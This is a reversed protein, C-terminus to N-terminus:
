LSFAKNGLFRSYTYVDAFGLKESIERASFSKSILFRSKQLLHYQIIKSPCSDFAFTCFRNMTREHITLVQALNGVTCYQHSLQMGKLEKLFNEAYDLYHMTITKYSGLEALIEEPFCCSAFYWFPNERKNIVPVSEMLKGILRSDNMRNSPISKTEKYKVMYVLKRFSASLSSDELDIWIFNGEYDSQVNVFHMEPIIYIMGAEIQTKEFDIEFYGGSKEFLMFRHAKMFQLGRAEETNIKLTQDSQSARKEREFLKILEQM